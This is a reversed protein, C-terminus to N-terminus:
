EVTVYTKASDTTGDSHNVTVTVTYIGITAWTHNIATGLTVTDSGGDGWTMYASSIGTTKRTSYPVATFAVGASGLTTLQFGCTPLISPIRTGFPLCFMNGENAFEPNGIENTNDIYVGSGPYGGSWHGNDTAVKWPIKSDHGTGYSERSFSLFKTGVLTSGSFIEIHMYAWNYSNQSFGFSMGVSNAYSASVGHTPDPPEHMTPFAVAQSYVVEDAVPLDLSGKAVRHPDPNTWAGASRRFWISAKGQLNYRDMRGTNNTCWDELYKHHYGALMISSGYTIVGYQDVSSLSIGQQASGPYPVYGTALIWEINGGWRYQRTATNKFIHDGFHAHWGNTRIRIGRQGDVIILTDSGPSIKVKNGSPIISGLNGWNEITPATGSLEATCKSLLNFKMNQYIKHDVSDGHPGYLYGTRIPGPYRDFDIEGTPAGTPHYGQSVFYHGGFETLGMFLHEVGYFRLTPSSTGNAYGTPKNAWWMILDHWDTRGQTVDMEDNATDNVEVESTSASAQFYWGSYGRVQYTNGDDGKM